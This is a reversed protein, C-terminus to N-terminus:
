TGGAPGILDGPRVGLDPLLQTRHVAHESITAIQWTDGARSHVRMERRKPDIIWYELVGVRLYEDRKEVEDRRRSGKSINEVVARTDM